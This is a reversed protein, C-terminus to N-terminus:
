RVIQAKLSEIETQQEQIAKTLYAILELTDIGKAILTGDKEYGGGFVLEPNLEELEDAVFGISKHENNEKWDFQRVKIANIVPLATIKTDEINKKLRVDSTTTAVLRYSYATTSGFQGHISLQNSANTGIAAARAGNTEYVCCVARSTGSFDKCRIQGSVANFTGDTSFKWMANYNNDSSYTSYPSYLINYSNDYAYYGQTYTAGYVSNSTNMHHFRLASYFGTGADIGHVDIAGVQQGTQWSKGYAEITISNDETFTFTPYYSSTERHGFSLCNKNSALDKYAYMQWYYQDNSNMSTVRFTYASLESQKTYLKDNALTWGGITGKEMHVEGDTHVWFPWADATGDTFHACVLFDGNFAGNRIYCLYNNYTSSLSDDNITWGGITGYTAILGGNYGVRFKADSSTAGNAGNSEGAWFAYGNVNGMGCGTAVETTSTGNYLGNASITWGGIDGSTASLAGASTVKFVSNAGLAIGDIGIYVGNNADTLTTKTNYIKQTGVYFGGTGGFRGENAYITGTITAGSAYIKGEGTVGFRSGIAFRLDTHSSGAVTRTFNVSSLAVSNTADSTVAAGNTHISTSDIVFGGVTGSTAKVEGQVHISNAYLDGTNTVGFKDGATIAWGTVTDASGGIAKAGTTGTCLMVSGDTGWTGSTLSTDLISFSAIKGMKAFIGGAKTVGFNTGITMVWTSGSSGGVTYSTTQAGGPDLYFNNAAPANTSSFMTSAGLTFGGIIGSGANITGSFYGNTTYIGWGSPTVGGIDALGTLLGIRVNPTTYSSSASGGYIDIYSSKNEGYSSMYIGVPHLADSIYIQYMMASLGSQTKSGTTFASNASPYSMQVQLTHATTNMKATITADQAALVKNDLTGSIKCKSNAFWTAGAFTDSTIQSDTITMTVTTSTVATISVTASDQFFITPSILM